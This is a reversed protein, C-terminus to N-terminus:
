IKEMWFHIPQNKNILEVIIQSRLNKLPGLNVKVQKFENDKVRFSGTDIVIKQNDRQLYVEYTYDMEQYEVNHVTFTIDYQKWRTITKPLNTHDEFYLETFREPQRTTALVIARKVSPIRVALKYLGFLSFVGLILLGTAILKRHNIRKIKMKM